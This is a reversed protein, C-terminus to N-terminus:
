LVELFAQDEPAVPMANSLIFSNGRLYAVPEGTVDNSIWPSEIMIFAGNPIGRMDHVDGMVVTRDDDSVKSWNKLVCVAM